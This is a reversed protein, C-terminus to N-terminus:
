LDKDKLAATLFDAITRVDVHGDVKLHVRRDGSRAILEFSDGSRSCRDRIWAAFARIADPAQLLSVLTAADAGVAAVAEIVAGRYVPVRSALRKSELDAVANFPVAVIM